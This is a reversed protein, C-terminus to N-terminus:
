LHAVKAEWGIFTFPKMKFEIILKITVVKKEGTLLSEDEIIISYQINLFLNSTHVFYLTIQM